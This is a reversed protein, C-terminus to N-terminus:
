WDGGGNGLFLSLYDLFIQLFFRIRECTKKIFILWNFHSVHAGRKVELARELSVAREFYM